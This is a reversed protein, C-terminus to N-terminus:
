RTEEERSNIEQKDSLHIVARLVMMLFSYPIIWKLWWDPIGPIASMRDSTSLMAVYGASATLLVMCIVLTAAHAVNRVVAPLPGQRILHNLVDIRIHSGKEAALAAGTFAVWLVATKLVPDIWAFGVFFINRLVIQGFSLMVIIFILICLLTKEGNVCWRNIGRLTNLFFGAM